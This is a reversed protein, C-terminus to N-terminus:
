HSSIRPLGQDLNSAKVGDKSLLDAVALLPTYIHDILLKLGRTLRKIKTM